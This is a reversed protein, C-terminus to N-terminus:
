DRCRTGVSNLAQEPTPFVCSGVPIWQHDNRGIARLREHRYCAGGIVPVIMKVVQDTESFRYAVALIPESKEWLETATAPDQFEVFEFGLEREEYTLESSYLVCAQLM